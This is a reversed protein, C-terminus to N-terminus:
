REWFTAKADVVFGPKGVLAVFQARLEDNWLVPYPSASPYAELTKTVTYLSRVATRTDNSLFPRCPGTYCWGLVASQRLSNGLSALDM